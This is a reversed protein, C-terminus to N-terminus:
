VVGGKPAGGFDDGSGVDVGRGFGEGGCRQLRWNCSLMSQFPVAKAPGCAAQRSNSHKWSQLLPVAKAPGCGAIFLLLAKAGAMACGARLAAEALMRFGDRMKKAVVLVLMFLRNSCDSRLAVRRMSTSHESTASCRKLSCSKTTM